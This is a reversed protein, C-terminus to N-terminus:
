RALAFQFIQTDERSESLKEVTMKQDTFFENYMYDRMSTREVYWYAALAFIAISFSLGLSLMISHSLFFSAVNEGIFFGDSFFLIGGVLLVFDSFLVVSLSNQIDQNMRQKEELLQNLKLNLQYISETNVAYKRKHVFVQMSFIYEDIVNKYKPSDLGLSDLINPKDRAIFIGLASLASLAGIAIVLGQSLQPLVAGLISVMGDFGDCLAYVGGALSLLYFLNWSAKELQNHQKEFLRMNAVEKKFQAKISDHKVFEIFSIYSINNSRNFYRNWVSDIVLPNWEAQNNM